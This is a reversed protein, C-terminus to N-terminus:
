LNITESHKEREFGSESNMELNGVVHLRTIWVCSMKIIKCHSERSAHPTRNKFYGLNTHRSHIPLAEVTAFSNSSAVM